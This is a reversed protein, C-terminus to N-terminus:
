KRNELKRGSHWKAPLYDDLMMEFEKSGDYSFTFVKIPKKIKEQIESYFQRCCGCMHPVEDRFKNSVLAVHSIQRNLDNIASIAAVMEAHLNLRRDYSSHVGGFYIKDGALVSAGYKTKTNSSFHTQMGQLAAKKLQQKVPKKNDFEISNECPNWNKITDLIEVPPNYLENKASEQRYLMKGQKDYVEYKLDTGTRRHHDAIIKIVLPNPLYKGEVVTVIKTVHPDKRNIALALAAHESTVDLLHTRSEFLGSAHYKNKTVAVSASNFRTTDRKLWSKALTERALQFAGM